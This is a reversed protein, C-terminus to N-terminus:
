SKTGLNRLFEMSRRGLHFKEEDTKNNQHSLSQPSYNQTPDQRFAEQDIYDTKQKDQRNRLNEEMGIREVIEHAHDLHKMILKLRRRNKEVTLDLNHRNAFQQIEELYFNIGYDVNMMEEDEFNPDNFNNENLGALQKMRDLDNM